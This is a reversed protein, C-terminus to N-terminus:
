EVDEPLRIRNKFKSDRMDELTLNCMFGNFILHIGEEFLHNGNLNYWDFKYRQIEKIKGLKTWSTQTCGYISRYRYRRFWIGNASLALDNGDKSIFRKCKAM